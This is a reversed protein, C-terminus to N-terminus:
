QQSGRKKRLTEVMTHVLEKDETSLGSLDLFDKKQIGLLFDTTVHFISALKVLTDPSPSRESLEYYSIVSKTVGIKQALEQQTM